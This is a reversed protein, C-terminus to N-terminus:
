DQELHVAEASAAGRHSLADKPWLITWVIQRATELVAIILGAASLLKALWIPVPVYGASVESALWASHAGDVAEIALLLFSLFTLVLAFFFAILQWRTSFSHVIIDVVVHQAHRQAHPLALFITTALLSETLEVAGMLPSNMVARGFTDVTGIIIILAVCISAIVM